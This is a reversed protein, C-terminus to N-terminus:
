RVRRPVGEDVVFKPQSDCLEDFTLGSSASPTFLAAFSLGAPLQGRWAEDSDAAIYSRAPLYIGTTIGTGATLGLSTFQITRDHPSSEDNCGEPPGFDREGPPTVCKLTVVSHHVEGAASAAVVAVCACVGALLCVKCTGIMSLSELVAFRTGRERIM